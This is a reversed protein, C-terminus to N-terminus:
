LNYYNPLLKWYLKDTDNVNDKSTILTCIICDSYKIVSMGVNKLGPYTLRILERKDSVWANAIDTIDATNIDMGTGNKIIFLSGLYTESPSPIRKNGVICPYVEANWRAAEKNLANTFTIPYYNNATRTNNIIDVAINLDYEKTPITPMTEEPPVPKQTDPPVSAEEHKSTLSTSIDAILKDKYDSLPRVGAFALVIAIIVLAVITILISPPRWKNARAHRCLFVFAVIEALFALSGFLPSYLFEGSFLKIASWVIFGFLALALLNLVLKYFDIKLFRVYFGSVQLKGRKNRKTM